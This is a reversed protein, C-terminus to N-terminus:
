LEINASTCYRESHPTTPKKQVTKACQNDLLLLWSCVCVSLQVFIEGLIGVHNQMHTHTLIFRNWLIKKVRYLRVCVCVNVIQCMKITLM